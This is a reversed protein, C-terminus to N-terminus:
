PAYKVSCGYAKTETYRPAKGAVLDELVAAVYNVVEDGTNGRADNDIAGKYALKGTRNIVFMHPTTQAGYLKGAVGGRDDLIPYPLKYEDHWAKNRDVNYTKTSNVALWVVGKDRFKDALNAMTKAQYHRKVFPCDPNIWELVVIKGAFDALKVRKGEQDQLTFTGAAEKLVGPADEVARKAKEAAEATKEATSSEEASPAQEPVAAEPESKKCSGVVFSVVVLLLAVKMMKRAM